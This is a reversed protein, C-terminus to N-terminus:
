KGFKMWILKSRQGATHSTWTCGSEAHEGAGDGHDGAGDGHDGATVMTVHGTVV